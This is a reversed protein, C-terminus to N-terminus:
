NRMTTEGLNLLSRAVNVWAAQEAPAADTRSEFLGVSLLAKAATPNKVFYDFSQEFTNELVAAEEATPYRSTACRFGFALRETANASDSLVIREALGRASEVFTPDNLLTLAALSTNSQPRMATCEERSPADFARMMPHLFQRQWHVYLGRRWQRGDTDHSYTRKPFNLHRYYEKPQYPRVSPGGISDELLGSVRLATDRVMEAQVRFRSQRAILANYPDRNRQAPSTFSSQRYTSSLLILRLLHKTDWGANIFEMALKDLLEPHEPAQGQGGFDDLVPAIGRGFMLYWYRNAMVRATLKGVGHQEDTLWRALDLRTLRDNEIPYNKGQFEPFAPAVLEGSEDQWDGRSLVRVPRPQQTKVIMTLSKSNELDSIAESLQRYRSSDHGSQLRALQTRMRHLHERQYVSLVKLEPQRSTPLSNLENGDQSILHYEDDIDAFFAGMSYFDRSTYPDFKHDHCQACGLTAGMWVQSLNRVRDALYISRYEKRQVGGEHSTQLLRNYGTAILADSTPNPLLDGALQETTFQDFPKNENFAHIVYDRYPWINHPQDGHYGVTDAFRVLDLWYIAMREGFHPSELFRNVLREYADGHKESVFEEVEQLTPPLGRLDFSLRRILTTRDAEPSPALNETQLRSLIFKDIWNRSWHDNKPSPAAIEEPPVYAWAMSWNAGKEIWSRLLEIEAPTVTKGSEPPPMREYEDESSIRSLLESGETNGEAVVAYGGRNLKASEELDLRLDAERSSADPGHCHFCKESLIPRIHRNFDITTSIGLSEDIKQSDAMCENCEVCTLIVLFMVITTRLGRLVNVMSPLRASVEGFTTGRSIAFILLM